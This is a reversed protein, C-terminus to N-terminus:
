RHKVHCSQYHSHSHVFRCSPLFPALIWITPLPICSQSTSTRAAACANLPNVALGSALFIRVSCTTCQLSNLSAIQGHFKLMKTQVSRECHRDRDHQQRAERSCDWSGIEGSLGRRHAWQLPRYMMNVEVTLPLVFLPMSLHFRKAM